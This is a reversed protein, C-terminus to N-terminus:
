TVVMPKKSLASSANCFLLEIFNLETWTWNFTAAQCSVAKLWNGSTFDHDISRNRPADASNVKINHAM